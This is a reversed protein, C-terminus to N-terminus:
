KGTYPLKQQTHKFLIRAFKRSRFKIPIKPKHIDPLRNASKIMKVHIGPISELYLFHPSPSRHLYTFIWSFRGFEVNLDDFIPINPEKGHISPTCKSFLCKTSWVTPLLIFYKSRHNTM